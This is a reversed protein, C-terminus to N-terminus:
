QPAPVNAYLPDENHVPHEAPVNPVPVPHTPGSEHTAQPRPDYESSPEEAHLFQSLPYKKVPVAADTHVPHEAPVNPVPV